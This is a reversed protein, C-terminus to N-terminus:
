GGPSNEQNKYLNCLHRYEKGQLLSDPCKWYYARYLEFIFSELKQFLDVFGYRYANPLAERHMQGISEVPFLAIQECSAISSKNRFSKIEFAACPPKEKYRKEAVHLGNIILAWSIYEQKFYNEKEQLLILTESLWSPPSVNLTM